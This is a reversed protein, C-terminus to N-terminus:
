PLMYLEPMKTASTKNEIISTYSKLRLYVFSTKSASRIIQRFLPLCLVDEMATCSFQAATAVEPDHHLVYKRILRLKGTNKMQAWFIFLSRKVYNDGRKYLTDTLKPAIGRIDNRARYGFFLLLRRVLPADIKSAKSEEQLRKILKAHLNSKERDTLRSYITRFSPLGSINDTVGTILLDFAAQSSKTDPEQKKCNAMSILLVLISLARSTKFIM